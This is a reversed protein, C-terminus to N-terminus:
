DKRVLPVRRSSAAPWAALVQLQTWGGMAQTRLHVVQLPRASGEV